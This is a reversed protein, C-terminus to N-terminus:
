LILLLQIGHLRDIRQCAAKEVVRDHLCDALRQVTKGQLPLQQGLGQPEPVLKCLIVIRQSSNMKGFVLVHVVM